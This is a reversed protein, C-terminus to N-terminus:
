IKSTQGSLVNYNKGDNKKNLPKYKLETWHILSYNRCSKHFWMFFHVEDRFGDNEVFTQMWGPEIEYYHERNRCFILVKDIYIAVVNNARWTLDFRQVSICKELEEIDKNFQFYYKSRVGTAMHLITGPKIRHGGRITHVKPKFDSGVLLSPDFTALIKDVFDTPEDWPFFEKFSLIM